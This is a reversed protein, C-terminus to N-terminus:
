KRLSGLTKKFFQYIFNQKVSTKAFDKQKIPSSPFENQEVLNNFEEFLEDLKNESYNLGYKEKFFIQFDQELNGFLFGDPVFHAAISRRRLDPNIGPTSGHVIRSGWFFIDGKQLRPAYMEFKGSELLEDIEMLFNVVTDHPQELHMKNYKAQPVFEHTGPYVYFRIGEPYIDQLAIWAAILHGNPRSDLFIWDQHPRTTNHDFFMTQFLKFNPPKRSMEALCEQINNSSLVRLIKDAFQGNIGKEYCHPNLFGNIMGGVPTKQHVEWLTSQRLYKKSSHIISEDYFNVLDDIEKLNTAGRCILYNHEQFFKFTDEIAGLHGFYEIKNM